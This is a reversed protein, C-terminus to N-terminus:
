KDSLVTRVLYSRHDVRPGPGAECLAHIVHGGASTDESLKVTGEGIEVHLLREQPVQRQAMMTETKTTAVSSIAM